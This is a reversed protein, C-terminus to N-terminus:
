NKSSDVNEKRYHNHWNVHGDATYRPEGKRQMKALMQQRKVSALRVAHLSRVTTKIQVERITLCCILQM